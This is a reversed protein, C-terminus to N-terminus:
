SDNQNISSIINQQKRKAHIKKINHRYRDMLSVRKSSAFENNVIYKRNETLPDKEEM